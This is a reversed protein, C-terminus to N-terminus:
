LVPFPKPELLPSEYLIEVQGDEKFKGIRTRKWLHHNDKHVTVRGEPADVEMESSEAVIAQVDFSQAKEAAMAWLLVATYACALTDGTVREPGYQDKFLRVFTNNSVNDLSQFYSMCSLTGAANENGIGSVEEETVALSLITTNGDLLGSEKLQKFFAVNSGGVVCNVIVRPKATKIKNIVSSFEIHGLPYYNEGVVEAHLRRLTSKCLKITTRPWIYDSGVFYFSSGRNKHLWETAAISSQTAEQGTYIINPSRELGEYYTPYYLLGNLKEFVPLVAKRAASTYCGVVAAVQDKELLRKAKEAFTAPDSAGDEIIPQIKKGLVGGKKNIMDIALLEAEVVSREAIAITGTLSHLIGLKVTNTANASGRSFSSPLASAMLALAGRKALARRNIQHM